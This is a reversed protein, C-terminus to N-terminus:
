PNRAKRRKMKLYERRSMYSTRDAIDTFIKGNLHDMEHQIVRALLGTANMQFRKGDADYATVMLSAPRKVRGFLGSEAVSGCGEWDKTQSKSLSSIRPNIFVRLQDTQSVKRFKTKRIETVFVRVSKGIQPAAMGVLGHHRMSDILDAVVKRAEKSAPNAVPRAMSRIIPDGVQSANKVIM